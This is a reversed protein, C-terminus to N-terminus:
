ANLYLTQRRVDLKGVVKGAAKLEEQAAKHCPLVVPWENKAIVPLLDKEWGRMWPTQRVVALFDEHSPPKAFDIDHPRYFQLGEQLFSTAICPDVGAEAASPWFAITLRWFDQKTM